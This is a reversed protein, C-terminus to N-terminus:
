WHSHVSQPPCFLWPHGQPTHKYDWGKQLSLSSSSLNWALRSSYLLVRDWFGFTVICNKSM